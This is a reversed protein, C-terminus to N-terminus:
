GVLPARDVYAAARARSLALVTLACLLSTATATAILHQPGFSFYEVPKLPAHLVHVAFDSDDLHSLLLRTNAAFAIVPLAAGALGAGALLGVAARRLTSLNRMRYSVGATLLWGIVAGVFAGAVTSPLYAGGREAFITTKVSVGDEGRCEDARLVLGDNRAAVFGGSCGLETVAAPKRSRLEWGQDALRALAQQATWGPTSILGTGGGVMEATSSTLVPGAPLKDSAGEPGGAIVDSLRDVQVTSPLAAFTREGLWSGAAAGFGGLALVALVAALLVAPREGPLRFRQRLGGLLLDTMEARSPRRREPESTEMLTTLIEVGHQRRYYGPYALLLRRYWNELSANPAPWAAQTM